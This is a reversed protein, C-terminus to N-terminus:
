ESSGDGGDGDEDRGLGVDDLLETFSTGPESGGITHHQDIYEAAEEPLNEGVYEVMFEIDDETVDYPLATNNVLEDPAYGRETVLAYVHLANVETGSLRPAANKIRPNRVIEQEDSPEQALEILYDFTASPPITEEWTRSRIDEKIRAWDEDTVPPAFPDVTYEIRLVAGNNRSYSISWYEETLGCFEAVIDYTSFDLTEHEVFVQHNEPIYEASLVGPADPIISAAREGRQEQDDNVDGNRALYVVGDYLNKVADGPHYSTRTLDDESVDDPLEARATFQDGDQEITLTLGTLAAVPPFQSDPTM